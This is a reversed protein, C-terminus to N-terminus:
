SRPATELEVTAGAAELRALTYRAMLDNLPVPSQWSRQGIRPLDAEEVVSSLINSVKKFDGMDHIVLRYAQAYISHLSCQLGADTLQQLAAQGVEPTLGAELQIPLAAVVESVIEEPMGTFEVLAKQWGPATADVSELVLEFRELDENILKVYGTSQFRRWISMGTTYDLHEVQPKTKLDAEVKHSDLYRQLQQRMVLDNGEFVLTYLCEEPRLTTVEADLRQRLAEATNPSVGGLVMAPEEILLALADAPQNGLFASLQQCIRPLKVADPVYVCVDVKEAALPEPADEPEVRIELGLEQLLTQTQEAITQEVESLMVSPANYLAKFMREAPTSLAEALVGAVKPTATGISDIVVRYTTPTTTEPM